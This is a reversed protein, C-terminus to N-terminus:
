GGFDDRLIATFFKVLSGPTDMLHMPVTMFIISGDDSRIGVPPKGVWLEQTNPPNKPYDLTYIVSQGLAPTVAYTGFLATRDYQLTPYKTTDTSLVQSGAYVRSVYGYVSSGTSDTYSTILSDVPAFDIPLGLVDIFNEFGSTMLVKGGSSLYEPLTNQAYGFNAIKAYWFVVQYLSFTRTLMPRHLPAPIPYSRLDVIDYDGFNSGSGDPTAQLATKYVDDPNPSAPVFDDVLLLKRRGAPKKVFWTHTTDPMRVVPSRAGALDEAYAYLVNNADLRLGPLSIGLDELQTGSFVKATSTTAAPNSLDGELTMLSTTGPIEVWNGASTDNLALYFRVITEDGDVDAPDLLFSAVPLTVAPIDTKDAFRLTPPSNQITVDLHPPNPDIAGYDVFPEGPTYVDNSDLDTFPEPGVNISGAYSASDWRGNGEMDVAAARFQAIITTLGALQVSFTSDHGITWGWSVGDVSVVYGKVLGDPDDGWWHIQVRSTQVIGVTDTWLYTRPPQNARPEGSIPDKCSVLWLSSLLIGSVLLIGLSHHKQTV